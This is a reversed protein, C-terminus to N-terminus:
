SKPKKRPAPRSRMQTVIKTGGTFSSRVGRAGAAQSPISSQMGMSVGGDHFADPGASLYIFQWGEQVKGEVLPRIDAFSRFRESENEQGDTMIVVYVEDPKRPMTRLRAETVEIAEGIADYLATRADPRYTQETLLEVQGLPKGQYIVRINSHFLVLTMNAEGPVTRQETIFNNVGDIAAQRKEATDEMSSSEDVVLVLESLRGTQQPPQTKPRKPRRPPKPRDVPKSHVLGDGDVLDGGRTRSKRRSGM